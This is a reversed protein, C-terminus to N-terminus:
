DELLRARRLRARWGDLGDFVHGQWGRARAVAVNEARDDVFLLQAPAIGSEAEVRRYIEPEPKSVKMQGSVFVRDFEALFPYQPLALEWTERGFNTLAFVPVGRGKLARLTAVSGELVPGTLDLWHDHWMRIETAFEPMAEAVNYVIERFGEGRDIRDNMGHLDVAAFMERRRAEGVRRDFYREPRWGILVNGIDFVVAEIM